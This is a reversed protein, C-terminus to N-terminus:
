IICQINPELAGNINEFKSIQFNGKGTFALVSRSFRLAVTNQLQPKTKKNFLFSKLQM